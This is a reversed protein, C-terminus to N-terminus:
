ITVIVFGGDVLGVLSGLYGSSSRINWGFERDRSLDGYGDACQLVSLTHTITGFRGNAGGATAVRVIWHACTSCWEYPIAGETLDLQQLGSTNSAQFRKMM